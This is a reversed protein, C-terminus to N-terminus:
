KTAMQAEAPQKEQAQKDKHQQEQQTELDSGAQRLWGGRRRSDGDGRGRRAVAIARRWPRIAM